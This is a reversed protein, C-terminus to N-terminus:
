DLKFCYIFYGHCIFVCYFIIIASIWAGKWDSSSLSKIMKLLNLCVILLAPITNYIQKCIHYVSLPYLIIDEMISIVPFEDAADNTCQYFYSLTWLYFYYLLIKEFIATIYYLYFLQFVIFFRRSIFVCYFINILASILRDKRDSCM